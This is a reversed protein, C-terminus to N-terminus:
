IYNDKLTLENIWKIKHNEKSNQRALIILPVSLISKDIKIRYSQVLEIYSKFTWNNNGRVEWDWSNRLARHFDEMGFEQWCHQTAILPDYEEVMLQHYKVLEPAEQSKDPPLKDILSSLPVKELRLWCRNLLFVPFEFTWPQGKIESLTRDIAEKHRGLWKFSKEM